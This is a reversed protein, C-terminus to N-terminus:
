PISYESYINFNQLCIKPELTLFMKQFWIHFIFHFFYPLLAYMLPEVRLLWWARVLGSHLHDSADIMFIWTLYLWSFFVNHMCALDSWDHEVRQSGICCLRGPEERWPIRRALITSHTAMGEKLPDEWGLSQVQSEQPEQMKPLNKVLSGGPFGLSCM